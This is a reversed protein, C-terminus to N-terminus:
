KCSSGVALSEMLTPSLSSRLFGRRMKCFMSNGCSSKMMSASMGPGDSSGEPADESNETKCCSDGFVGSEVSIGSVRPSSSVSGESVWAACASREKSESLGNDSVWSVSGEANGCSGEGSFGNRPTVGSSKAGEGLCRTAASGENEPGLNGARWIGDSEAVGNRAGGVACIENSGGDSTDTGIDEDVYLIGRRPVSAAGLNSPM